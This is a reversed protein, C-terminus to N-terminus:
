AGSTQESGYVIQDCFAGIEAAVDTTLAPVVKCNPINEAHLDSVEAASESEFWFERM